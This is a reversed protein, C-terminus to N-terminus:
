SLLWATSEGTLATCTARTPRLGHHAHHRCWPGRWEGVMCTGTRDDPIADVTCLDSLDRYLGYRQKRAQFWERNNNSRLAELFAFLAADFHSQTAM